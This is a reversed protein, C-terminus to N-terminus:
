RINIELINGTKLHIEFIAGKKEKNYGVIEGHHAKVILNSIYLGLGLGTSKRDRYFREFLHTLTEANLGEGEDEISIVAMNEGEKESASITLKGNIPSHKIGNEIINIFVQRIKLKDAIAFVPTKTDFIIRVNKKEAILDFSKIVSILIENIDTKELNLEPDQELNTVLILDNVMMTLRDIEEMNSKLYGKTEDEGIIGDIMGKTNAKLTTLPTRLEHSVGALFADRGKENEYLKKAMDNLSLSLQGIEDFSKVELHESFDGEAIAHAIDNMKLIPRTFNRVFVSLILITPLSILLFIVAGYALILRVKEDILPLEKAFVLIYEDSSIETETTAFLKIEYVGVFYKRGNFMSSVKGGDTNKIKDYQGIDIYDASNIDDTKIVEIRYNQEINYNKVFEELQAPDTGSMLYKQAVQLPYISANDMESSYISMSLNNVQLSTIFLLLAFNFIVVMSIIFILKHVIKLKRFM